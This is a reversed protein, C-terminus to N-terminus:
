IVESPPPTTNRSIFETPTRGVINTFHRWATTRSRYGADWFLDQINANPDKRLCECIYDIRRRHVMDSLNAFGLQRAAHQIYTRNTGLLKVVKDATLEPDQWITPDNMLERLNHAVVNVTIMTNDLIDSQQYYTRVSELPIHLREYHEAYIITITILLYLLEHIIYGEFTQLGRSFIYSVGMLVVFLILVDIYKQIRPKKWKFRMVIMMIAYPMYMSIFLIRALVNPTTIETTLRSISYINTIEGIYVYYMVYLALVASPLFLVAARKFNLWRPNIIEIIYCLLLVYIYFGPIIITPHLIKYYDLPVTNHTMLIIEGVSALTSIIFFAFIYRWSRNHPEHHKIYILVAAALQVFVHIGLIILNYISDIYSFHM